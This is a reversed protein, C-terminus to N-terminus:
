ILDEEQIIQTMANRIKTAYDDRESDSEYLATGSKWTPPMEGVDSRPVVHFHLHNVTQGACAGNSQLINVGDAFAMCVAKAAVRVIYMLEESCEIDSCESFPIELISPWHRKPIVLLHGKEIPSVDLFALVNESEYVKTAPISGTCIKCFICNPDRKMKM